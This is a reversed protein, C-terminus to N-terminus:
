IGFFRQANASTLADIEEKDKELIEAVKDRVLNVYKPYNTEGRHPVPTMYPCDTELLLRDLPTARLITPKETANKFTIAGGYAFYIGLKAFEKLLELSGSYCHLLVGYDLKDKNEKLIPLMDGYADRLHIIIPKKLEYALYLQKKFVEKQVDRPSLDYYYDLGIEGIAVCKKHSCAEVLFDQAKEDYTLADHPHIGVACFVKQYKEAQKLALVSSPLDCGVNVVASLNDKEFSSVIEDAFPELREDNLHVHTDILM